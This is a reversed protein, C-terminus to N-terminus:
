RTKGRMARGTPWGCRCRMWGGAVPDHVTVYHPPVWLVEATTSRCLLTKRLLDGSGELEEYKWGYRGAM